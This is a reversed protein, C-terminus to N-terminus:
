APVTRRGARRYEDGSQIAILAHRPHRAAIMPLESADPLRRLLVLYLATNITGSPVGEETLRDVLAGLDGAQKVRLTADIVAQTLGLEPRAEAVGALLAQHLRANDLDLPFWSGVAVRYASGLGAGAVLAAEAAQAHGEDRGGAPSVASLGRRWLYRAWLALYRLIRGLSLRGALGFLRGHGADLEPGLGALGTLLGALWGRAVTKRWTM